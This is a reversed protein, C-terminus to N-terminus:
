KIHRFAKSAEYGIGGGAGTLLNIKEKLSDKCNSKKEILMFGM